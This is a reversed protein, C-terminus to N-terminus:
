RISFHLFRLFTENKDVKTDYDLTFISPVKDM